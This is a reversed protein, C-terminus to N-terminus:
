GMWMEAMLGSEIELLDASAAGLACARQASTKRDQGEGVLARRHPGQHPDGHRMDFKPFPM